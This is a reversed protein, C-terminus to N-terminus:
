KRRKRPRTKRKNKAKSKTKAKSKVIKKKNGEGKKKERKSKKVKKKKELKKGVWDRAGLFAFFGFFGFFGDKFNPLLGILGFIGLWGLKWLDKPERKQVFSITNYVLLVIFGLLFLLSLIFSVPEEVLSLGYLVNHWISFGVALGFLIYTTKTAKEM